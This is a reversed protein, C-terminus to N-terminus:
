FSSALQLWFKTTDTGHTDASYHAGKFLLSLNNNIKKAVVWDIESGYKAGGEEARFDHYFVTASLGKVVGDSFKYGAKFYLDKLGNGPTALFKDAFGNYKHLTALPTKFSQAGNGGLLEYGAGVTFGKAAASAAAHFYSESYDTPNDAADSQNAYEVEYNVTMGGSVKQSGTLNVGYTASSLGYVAPDTLDIILGYATIKGIDGLGSYTLNISHTNTQLTGLAHKESFIRNVQWVYAYSASFDKNPTYAALLSDYTQDNQRWGVTGVMRQNLLNIGQRGGRLLFGGDGKYTIYAQNLETSQPDAVVPYMSKGNITSNYDSGFYGRTDEFEITASLGQYPRTTYALKTSTTYASANNAVGDQSVSEFRGRIKLSADGHTLADILSESDEAIAPAFGSSIITASLLLTRFM